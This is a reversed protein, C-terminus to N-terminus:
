SYVTREKTKRMQCERSLIIDPVLTIMETKVLGDGYKPMTNGVNKKPTYEDIKELLEEFRERLKKLADRLEGDGDDFDELRHWKYPDNKYISSPLPNGSKNGSLEVIEKQGLM